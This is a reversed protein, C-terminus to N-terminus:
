ANEMASRFVYMDATTIMTLTLIIIGVAILGTGYASVIGLLALFLFAGSVGLMFKKKMSFDLLKKIYIQNYYFM